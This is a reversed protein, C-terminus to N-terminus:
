NNTQNGRKSLDNEKLTSLKSAAMKLVSLSLRLVMASLCILRPCCDLQNVYAM